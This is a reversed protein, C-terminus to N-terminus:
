PSSPDFCDDVLALCKKFVEDSESTGDVHALVAQRRYFQIVPLTEVEYLELRRMVADDTDDDRQLVDGDCM